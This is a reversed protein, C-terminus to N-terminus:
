DEKSLRHLARERVDQVEAIREKEQRGERESRPPEVSLLRGVLRSRWRRRVTPEDSSRHHRRETLKDRWRRRERRGPDDYEVSPRESGRLPADPGLLDEDDGDYDPDDHYPEFTEEEAYGNVAEEDRPAQSAM